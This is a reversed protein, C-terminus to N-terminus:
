VVGPAGSSTSSDQPADADEEAGGEGDVGSWLALVDGLLLKGGSTLRQRCWRVDEEAVGMLNAAEEVLTWEGESGSVDNRLYRIVIRDGGEEFVFERRWLRAGQEELTGASANVREIERNRLALHYLARTDFLGDHGPYERLIGVAHERTLPDRCFLAVLLVYYSWTCQLSLHRGAGNAGWRDQEKKKRIAVEVLSLYERFKPTIYKAHHINSWIQKSEFIQLGVLKLRSDIARLFTTADIDDGGLMIKDFFRTSADEIRSVRRETQETKEGVRPDNIYDNIFTEITATDHSELIHSSAVSDTWAPTVAMQSFQVDEVHMEFEDITTIESPISSDDENPSNRHLSSLLHLYALMTQKKKKLGKTLHPLPVSDGVRDRRVMHAFAAIVVLVPTVDQLAAKPDPAFSSMQGTEIEQNLMHLMLALGHNVHDLAGRRQGRMTEFFVLFVSLYVAEQTSIGQGQLNLSRGYYTVAQMYHKDKAPTVQTLAPPIQMSAFGPASERQWISLAGIAMAANRLTENTRAVQPTIISWFDRNPSTGCVWSSRVMCLFEEFYMMEGAHQFDRFDPDLRLQKIPSAVQVVKCNEDVSQVPAFAFTIKESVYECARGSNSCNECVPKGEDCRIHRKKCTVCGTKVKRTSTRTHKPKSSTAIIPALPLKREVAMM